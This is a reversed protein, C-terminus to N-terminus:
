MYNRYSLLYIEILLIKTKTDYNYGNGYPVGFNNM